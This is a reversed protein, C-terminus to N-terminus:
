KETLNFVGDWDLAPATQIFNDSRKLYTKTPGDEPNEKLLKGLMLSAKKWDRTDFVSHAEEFDSLFQVSKTDMESTVGILEWLQVPTNIGVVRVKDLRRATVSDGAAKYTEDSMLIWSGYQKNVGELRAALNVANGMITYNMKKETGMNGVVMDGTNLGVRTLLATPTIGEALFKINLEAEKQKMRISAICANLAHEQFSIPAGFFAIIADGEYKDITGRKELVIDSMGSLYHNLLTVLQEADLKESVTSFGRIDTFMATIWKKQGGLKLSSPDDVLENIVDTSLYTSFAKRLFSKERESLLFSVLTYALFSLFTALLPSLLAVYVGTLRFVLFAAFFVVLVSGIGTLIQNSTKMKAIVLIVLVSVLVSLIASLWLPAEVLFDEQMITNATSAHVGINVYDEQFPNVGLDTTAAGSWGVICFTGAMYEKLYKYTKEIFTATEECDKYLAVFSDRAETQQKELGVDGAAKSREIFGNSIKIASDALGQAFFDKAASRFAAKSEIWAKKDEQTGTDLAQVRLDEMNKNAELLTDLPIYGGPLQRWIEKTKLKRLSIALKDEANRYELLSYFPLSKFSYKYEKKPWNILMRGKPDIPIRIDKVTGNIAAKKITIHTKEVLLEPNGMKHMLPAMALQLYFKDDIKDVLYIKRLTGDADVEVNTFGGGKAMTTVEPIPVLFEKYESVIPLKTSVKPYAIYTEALDKRRNGINEPQKNLTIFSNGFLRMAQGLYSDNEVAVLNAKKYLGDRSDAISDGLMIGYEAAEQLNITKNSLANFLDNMNSAIEGFVTNFETNLGTDLYIKDVSMPSKELFEIDFVIYDAGAETLAELGRAILERPWPYMGVKMISEDDINLLRISPDEKVSSKMHLFLDYIGKEMDNWFPFLYLLGFIGGALLPIFFLRKLGKKPSTKQQM